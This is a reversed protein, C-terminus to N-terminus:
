VGKYGNQLGATGKRLLYDAAECNLSRLYM